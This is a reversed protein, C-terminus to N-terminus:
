GLEYALFLMVTIVTRSVLAPLATPAPAGFGATLLEAVGHSVVEYSLLAWGFIIGFLFLNFYFYGLDALSSKSMVIRKPFLARLLVKLRIGRGKRYRRAAVVLFAIL